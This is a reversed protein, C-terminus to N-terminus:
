FGGPDAQREVPLPRGQSRRHDAERQGQAGHAEGDLVDLRAELPGGAGEAGPRQPHNKVTVRRRAAGPSHTPARSAKARLRPSNPAVMVKAALMAPCVRVIGDAM